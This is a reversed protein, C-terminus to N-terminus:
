FILIAKNFSDKLTNLGTWITVKELNNKFFYNFFFIFPITPNFSSKQQSTTGQLVSNGEMLETQAFALYFKFIKM